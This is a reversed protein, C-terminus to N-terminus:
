TRSSWRWRSALAVPADVGSLGRESFSRRALRRCGHVVYHVGHHVAFQQDKETGDDCEHHERPRDLHDRHQHAAPTCPAKGPEQRSRRRWRGAGRSQGGLLCGRLALGPRLGVLLRLVPGKGDNPAAHGDPHDRLEVEQERGEDKGDWDEREDDLRDAVLGSIQSVVPERVLERLEEGDGEREGRGESCNRVNM